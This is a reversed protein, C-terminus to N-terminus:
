IVQAAIVLFQTALKAYATASGNKYIYRAWLFPAAPMHVVSVAAGVVAGTSFIYFYLLFLYFHM